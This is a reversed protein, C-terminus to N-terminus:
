PDACRAPPDCAPSRDTREKGQRDRASSAFEPRIRPSFGSRRAPSRGDPRHLSSTRARISRPLRRGRGILTRRKKLTFGTMTFGDDDMVSYSGGLSLYKAIASFEPLKENPIVKGLQPIQQPRRARANAGFLQQIAKEYQGSKVLDYLLRTSEEPRVFTM